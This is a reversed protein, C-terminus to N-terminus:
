GFKQQLKEYCTMTIAFLPSIIMCRPVVGKFFAPYGENKVINAVNMKILSVERSVFLGIGDVRAAVAKSHVRTKIVDLPTTVAAAVTGAIAGAMFARGAVAEKDKADKLLLQKTQSYLSFYIMSFPIDRSLTALIGTYMGSFGLNKVLQRYGILEKIEGSKLKDRMTAGQIKLLEMPNTMTVQIFGALGGALMEKGMSVYGHEDMFSNRFMEFCTLKLAKEPMVFLVNPPWGRYMGKLGDKSIIQRACDVPGAYVRQKGLGKQDQLKTKVIDLPYIITTAIAGSVGSYMLHRHLAVKRQQPAQAQPQSPPQKISM